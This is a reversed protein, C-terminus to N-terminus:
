FDAGIITAQVIAVIPGGKRCDSFYYVPFLGILGALINTLHAVMVLQQEESLHNEISLIVPFPSATFAHPKIGSSLVDRLLVASTMTGGHYILPEGDPGDWLDM